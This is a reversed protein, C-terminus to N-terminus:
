PATAPQTKPGLDAGLDDVAAKLGALANQTAQPYDRKAVSQLAYVRVALERAKEYTPGMKGGKAPPEKLRIAEGLAQVHPGMRELFPLLDKPAGTKQFATEMDPLIVRIQALSAEPAPLSYPSVVPNGDLSRQNLAKILDEGCLISADILVTCKKAPLDWTVGGYGRIERLNKELRAIQEGDTPVLISLVVSEYRESAAAPLWPLAALACLAFLALMRSMSIRRFSGPAGM